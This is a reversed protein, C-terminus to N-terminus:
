LSEEDQHITERLSEPTYLFPTMWGHKENYKLIKYYNNISYHKMNWSLLGDMKSEVTTALHFCDMKAKEPIRLLEQYRVALDEIQKSKPIISLGDLFEMRRRSADSDGHTCEEVVYPSIFIEFKLRYKEWFFITSRQRGFSIDDGKRGTV